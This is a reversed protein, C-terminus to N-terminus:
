LDRTYEQRARDEAKRQEAQQMRAQEDKEALIANLEAMTAEWAKQRENEADGREKQEATKKVDDLKNLREEVVDPAAGSKEIRQKAQDYLDDRTKANDNVETERKLEAAVVERLKDHMEKLGERMVDRIDNDDNRRGFTAQETQLQEKFKDELWLEKQKAPAYQFVEGAVFDALGQRQTELFQEAEKPTVANRFVRGVESIVESVVDLTQSVNYEMEKQIEQDIYDWESEIEGLVYQWEENITALLELDSQQASLAEQKDREEEAIAEKDREEKAATELRDAEKKDFFEEDRQEKDLAAGKQQEDKRLAELKDAAEKALQEKQADDRRLLEERAREPDHERERADAELQERIDTLEEGIERVHALATSLQSRLQEQENDYYFGPETDASERNAHELLKASAQQRVGEWHAQEDRLQSVRQVIHQAVAM